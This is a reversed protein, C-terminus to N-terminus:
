INHERWLRVCIITVMNTAMGWRLVRLEMLWCNPFAAPLVTPEELKNDYNPTFDVTEEGISDIMGFASPALRAETYRLLLVTM